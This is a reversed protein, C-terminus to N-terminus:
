GNGVIEMLCECVYDVDQDTLNVHTPLCLGREYLEASVPYKDKWDPEFYPPLSPIPRFFPRTEIDKKQLLEVRVRDISEYPPLLLAFMWGNARQGGQFTFRDDGKLNYRYRNIIERRRAIFNDVQELQALGVAAQLDTMRYNYGVVSHHYDGPTTQGQGRYLKILRALEEDDTLVMGGEGTSILKNGYFSFTSFLAPESTIHSESADLGFPYKYAPYRPTWIADYLDVGLVFEPFQVDKPRACWSLKDVDCFRIDKVETCYQVANATAIYTLAPIVISIGHSRSAKIALHLAATGSSCALAFKRGTWASMAEEFRQVYYGQTLWNRSLCDLVYKQENGGLRSSSVPILSSPHYSITM